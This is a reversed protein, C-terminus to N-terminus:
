DAVATSLRNWDEQGGPQGFRLWQPHDPFVRTWILQRALHAHLARAKGTHFLTFLNAVGTIEWGQRTLLGELNQKRIELAKRTEEIWATDGPAKIGIAEAPGFVTWSGLAEALHGTLAANTLAFGLRVGALGFFKGFSRMIILGEKECRGTLNLDPAVDAFAEDVVLWGRRLALREQVAELLDPSFRCGDPNNPNVVVVIDTDDAAKEPDAFM